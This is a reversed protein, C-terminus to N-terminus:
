PIEKCTGYLPCHLDPLLDLCVVCDAAEDWRADRTIPAGCFAREPDHCCVVHCLDDGDDVDATVPLEALSM